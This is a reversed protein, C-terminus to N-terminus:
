PGVPRFESPPPPEGLPLTLRSWVRTDEGGYNREYIETTGYVQLIAQLGGRRITPLDLYYGVLGGIAAKSQMNYGPMPTSIDTAYFGIPGV